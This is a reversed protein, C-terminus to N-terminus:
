KKGIAMWVFGASGAKEESNRAVLKFGSKTTDEAIAVATIIPSNGNPTIFVLPIESFSTDFSISWRQSSGQSGAPSFARGDVSGYQLSVNGIELEM